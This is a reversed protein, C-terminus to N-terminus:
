WRGGMRPNFDRSNPRDEPDGWCDCDMGGYGQGAMGGRGPGGMGRTPLYYEKGDVIAKVVMLYTKDTNPRDVLIGEVTIQDGSKIGLDDAAFAPVMLEYTKGRATIEPNPLDKFSIPGTLTITDWTNSLQEAETQGNAFVGAVAFVTLISTLLFLKKM